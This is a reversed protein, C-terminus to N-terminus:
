ISHPYNGIAKWIKQRYEYPFRDIIEFYVSLAHKNNRGYNYPDHADYEDTREHYEKALSYLLEAEEDIYFEALYLREFEISTM